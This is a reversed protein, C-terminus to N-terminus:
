GLEQAWSRAAMVERETITHGVNERHLTVAVGAEALIAELHEVQGAPVMPDLNGAGIFVAVGSLDPVTEPEFPLMPSLLVAGRLVDPRRLLLSVAINAGNSFGIAIVNAADFGYENAAVGVFTVLDDTRVALDDLDLVGPALRRFFRPSNGELVNGRPSLLRAGPFVAQALPILDNEDGGTGHLVLITRGVAADAGPVFRHVHIESATRM